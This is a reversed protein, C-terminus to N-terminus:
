YRRLARPIVGVISGEADLGIVLNIEKQTLREVARAFPDSAPMAIWAGSVSIAGLLDKVTHESPAVLGGTARAEKALYKLLELAGFAAIPAGTGDICIAVQCKRELGDAILDLTTAETVKVYDAALRTSLPVFGASAGRPRTRTAASVTSHHKLWEATESCLLSVLSIIKAHIDDFDSDLIPEHHAVRNRFRNIDKAMMQVDHRTTSRPINPFVVNLSTRWLDAYNRRLLNSWFDFTLEAVVQGRTANSGARASAKSLTNVGETMLVDELFAQDLHWDSGHRSVLLADMANRLAVEVVSLPFMFAKAVRANYLYLEVAYGENGGSKTLYTAFRPESLSARIAAIQQPLNAYPVQSDAM